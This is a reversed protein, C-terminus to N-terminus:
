AEGKLIKIEASLQQVAKILPAILEAYGISLVDEGGNVKHDQYGGFDVGLDNLAQKVEQAILGHHFRIRKKSGDKEIGKYNERHDWKFDVPRLKNIFDLGLVTDRVDTKDRADSRDQVAGYAYTTTSSNGLQVQNSGSVTTSQGLGTCNTFTTFTGTTTNRLADKGIATNSYGTTVNSLASNGIATNNFGGNQAALTASGVSVDYQGTANLRQSQFGIAVCNDGTTYAKGAEYGMAILGVGTTVNELNGTGVAINTNSNSAGNTISARINTFYYPNGSSNSVVPLVYATNAYDLIRKCRLISINNSSGAINIDAQTNNTYFRTDEILIQFVSEGATGLQVAHTQTGPTGIFDCSRITNNVSNSLGSSDHMYMSYTVSGVGSLLVPEFSCEEFRIATSSDVETLYTGAVTQNYFESKYFTIQSSRFLKVDAVSCDYYVGATVVSSAFRIAELGYQCNSAYVDKLHCYTQNNIYIGTGNPAGSVSIDDLILHAGGNGQPGASSDFNLIKPVDTRNEAFIGIHKVRNNFFGTSTWIFGLMYSMAGGARIFTANRDEGEVTIRSKMVLPATIKYDGRPFFVTGGLSSFCNLAAQIAVTDDAIGDGVAGFDKVSVTQALKAEVNTPVSGAFPPTYSVQEADVVGAGQQQTTTFKVEAGVHLGTTFTVTNSDTEVYAYQAGSGYQNVGDVFVSLSNTGPQYNIGLNFVTQGATATVIEQQNTFAIFNSNIGSINDYTAILVDNADKLLFKYTLGDTLWIEGGSPVRGAADLVIPNTWPVNGVSSTYTAQPTTTGAAYTFIKGGTLPTGSNTFFQAAVGGVPSLNVAM